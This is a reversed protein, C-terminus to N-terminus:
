QKAIVRKAARLMADRSFNWALLEDGATVLFTGDARLAIARVPSNSAPALLVTAGGTTGSTWERVNGDRDASVLIPRTKSPDNGRVAFALSTVSREHRTDLGVKKLLPLSWETIFGDAGGSVLVEGDPRFALALVDKGADVSEPRFSSAPKGNKIELLRIRGRSGGAAVVDSAASFALSTISERGGDPAGSAVGDGADIAGAFQREWIGGANRSWLELQSGLAMALLAEDQSFSPAALPCLNAPATGPTLVKPVPAQGEVLEWLTLKGGCAVTAVSSGKPHLTFMTGRDADITWNPVPVIGDASHRWFLIRKDGRTAAITSSERDM